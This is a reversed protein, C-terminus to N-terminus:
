ANPQAEPTEYIKTEKGSKQMFGIDSKELSIRLQNTDKINHVTIVLNHCGVFVRALDFSVPDFPEVITIEEPAKRKTPLPEGAAIAKERALEQQAVVMASLQPIITIGHICLAGTDTEGTAVDQLREGKSPDVNISIPSGGRTHVICTLKANSYNLVNVHYANISSTVTVILLTVFITLKNM